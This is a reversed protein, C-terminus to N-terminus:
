DFVEHAIGLILIGKVVDEAFDDDDHHHHKHHRHHKHHKYHRQHHRGHRNKYLPQPNYLGDQGTVVYYPDHDREAAASQAFCLNGMAFIILLCLVVIKKM